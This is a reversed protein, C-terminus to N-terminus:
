QTESDAAVPGEAKPEYIKRVKQAYDAAEQHSEPNDLWGRYRMVGEWLGHRAVYGKLIRVGLGINDEVNFLNINEREAIRGWTKLHIQMVGVSDAESIAYPNARSEVIVISAVLRPDINYKKSSEVIAKAVRGRLTDEISYPKLFHEITQVLPDISPAKSEAQLSTPAVVPTLDSFVVGTATPFAFIFVSVIVTLILLKLSKVFL